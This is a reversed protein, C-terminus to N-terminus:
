HYFFSFFYITDIIYHNNICLAAPVIEISCWLLMVSWRMKDISAKNQTLAVQRLVGRMTATVIQYWLSARFILFLIVNAKRVINQHSCDKGFKEKWSYNGLIYIHKGTWVSKSLLRQFWNDKYYVLICVCNSVHVYTVINWTGKNWSVNTYLRVGYLLWWLCVEVLLWGPWVLRYAIMHTSHGGRVFQHCDGLVIYGAQGTHVCWYNSTIMNYM